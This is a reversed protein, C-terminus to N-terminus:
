AAWTPERNLLSRYCSLPSSLSHWTFNTVYFSTGTHCHILSFYITRCFTIITAAIEWECYWPSTNKEHKETTAHGAEWRPPRTEIGPWDKNSKHDVFHNHSLVNVSHNPKGQRYLEVLAGYESIWWESAYWETWAVGLYFRCAKFLYLYTRWQIKWEKKVSWSHLTLRYHQYSWQSVSYKNGVKSFEAGNRLVVVKRVVPEDEPV